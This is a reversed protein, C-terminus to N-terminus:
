PAQPIPAKQLLLGVAQLNQLTDQRMHQRLSLRYTGPENFACGEFLPVEYEYLGGLGEGNPSGYPKGSGCDLIDINKLEGELVNGSPSRLEAMVYLNCFKYNLGYRLRLMLDATQAQPQAFEFHLLSDAYWTANPLAKFDEHLVDEPQCSWLSCGVGWFLAFLCAKKIFYNKM